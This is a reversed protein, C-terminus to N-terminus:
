RTKEFTSLGFRELMWQSNPWPALLEHYTHRITASRRVEVVLGAGKLVLSSDTVPMNRFFTQSSNPVLTQCLTNCCLPDLPAYIRFHINKIDCLGGYLQWKFFKLKCWLNTLNDFARETIPCLPVFLHWHRPKPNSILQASYRKM